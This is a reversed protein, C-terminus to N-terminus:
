FQVGVTFKRSLEDFISDKMHKHRIEDVKFGLDRSKINHCLCPIMPWSSLQVSNLESLQQHHVSDTEHVPIQSEKM